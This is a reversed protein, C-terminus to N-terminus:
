KILYMVKNMLQEHSNGFKYFLNLYLKILYIKIFLSFIRANKCLSTNIATYVGSFFEM